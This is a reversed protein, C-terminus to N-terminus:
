TWNKGGPFFFCSNSLVCFESNFPKQDPCFIILMNCICALDLVKSFNHQGWCTCPHFINGEGYCLPPLKWQNRRDHFRYIRFNAGSIQPAQPGTASSSCLILSSYKENEIFLMKLQILSRPHMCCSFFSFVSNLVSFNLSVNKLAASPSCLSSIKLHIQFIYHYSLTM